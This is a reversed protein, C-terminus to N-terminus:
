GPNPSNPPATKAATAYANALDGFLQISLAEARKQCLAAVELQHLPATAAFAKELLSNSLHPALKLSNQLTKRRQAFAAKVLTEFLAYDKIPTAPTSRPTLTIVASDVQPSPYFASAPVMNKLDTEFWLQCAISLANYSKKGPSATIREGVEKQVMFTLQRVRHRLPHDPQSLEGVFHFLIPATMHYPLNGVVHVPEPGLTDADELPFHLINGKIVTLKAVDPHNKFKQGLYHVMRPDLEVAILRQCTPLLAQTLFGAGPGIELLTDTETAGVAHVINQLVTGDILFNQSFRKQLRLRRAEERYPNSEHVSPKRPLTM